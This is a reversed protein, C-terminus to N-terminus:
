RRQGSHDGFEQREREMVSRLVRVVADVGIMTAELGPEPRHPSEFSFPRGADDHAAVREDPVDTSAVIFNPDICEGAHDQGRREVLQRHRDSRSIRSSDAPGRGVILSRL